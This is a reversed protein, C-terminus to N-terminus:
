PLDYTKTLAKKIKPWWNKSFTDNDLIRNYYICSIGLHIEKDSDLLKTCNSITLELGECDTLEMNTIEGNYPFKTMIPMHALKEEVNGESNKCFYSITKDSSEENIQIGEAALNKLLITIDYENLKPIYPKNNSDLKSKNFLQEEILIDEDEM